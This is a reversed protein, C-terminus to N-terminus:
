FKELSLDARRSKPIGFAPESHKTAKVSPDYAGPGPKKSAEKMM